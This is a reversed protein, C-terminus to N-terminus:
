PPSPLYLVTMHRMSCGEVYCGSRLMCGRAMHGVKFCNECLKADRVIKIRDGYSKRKFQECNWLQRMWYCVLCKRPTSITKNKIPLRQEERAREYRPSSAEQGRSSGQTALTSMKTATSPHRMSPNRREKGENLSAGFLPNNAVRAKITVFQAIHHIKPRQGSQQISDAVEFWKTKLHFPLRNVIRRLNDASNIEELYGISELGNTCDRLKDSFALLAKSDHPRM